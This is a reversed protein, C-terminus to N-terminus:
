KTLKRIYDLYFNKLERTLELRIDEENGTRISEIFRENNIFAASISGLVEAYLSRQEDIPSLMMVVGRAGRFYPDTFCDSDKPSCTVFVSSDVASTRCHLLGFSLEEFFQTYLKERETIAEVIENSRSTNGTIKLGLFVLLERFTVNAAVQYTHFGSLIARIQDTIFSAKELEELFDTHISTRRLHSYDKIKHEIAALDSGTILPSSLLYDVGYQDLNMTSVFFDVDSVPLDNLEDRGYAKLYAKDSLYKELRTMMLRAVGFGSACVIGITVKRLNENEELLREEAAGFHMALFGIEEDNVTVGSEQEIVNACLRCRNFIDPYENKIESLLPNFINMGTKLRVMVPRLHVMLGRVFEEDSKLRPALQPSYSDIMRDVIDLLVDDGIGMDDSLSTDTSYAIKSGQIHLMVYAAEEHPIDIEFEDEMADLIMRALDYDEGKELGELRDTPIEVFGGKKIREIAIAIHTVLGAYANQALSHLRPEDLSELIKHVRSLTDQDLFSYIGSDATKILVDSFASDSYKKDSVSDPLVYEAIYRRMAERYDLEHGKLFVGYGKKKVVTINNKHLWPALAEIDAAITTESVGLLQSYYFLKRPEREKLLNLLLFKQRALRDAPDINNENHPLNHSLRERATPTGSLYNGKSRSRVLLMGYNSVAKGLYPLMRQVTRTSIGLKDAIEQSHVPEDKDLMLRLIQSERTNFEM